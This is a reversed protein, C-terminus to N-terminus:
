TRLRALDLTQGLEIVRTSVVTTTPQAPLACVSRGEADGELDPDVTVPITIPPYSQGPLV